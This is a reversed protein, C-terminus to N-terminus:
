AVQPEDYDPRRRVKRLVALGFVRALEDVVPADVLMGRRLRRGVAPLERLVSAIEGDVHAGAHQRIIGCQVNAEGNCARSEGERVFASRALGGSASLEHRHELLERRRERPEIQVIRLPPVCRWRQACEDIM